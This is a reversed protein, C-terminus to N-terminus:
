CSIKKLKVAFNENLNFLVLVVINRPFVSFNVAVIYGLLVVFLFTVHDLLLGSTAVTSAEPLTVAIAGPFAVMVAVATPPAEAVHSTVIM